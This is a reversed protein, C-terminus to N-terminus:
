KGKGGPGPHKEHPGHHSRKPEEDEVLPQAWEKPLVMTADEKSAAPAKKAKHPHAETDSHEMEVHAADFTCGCPHKQAAM